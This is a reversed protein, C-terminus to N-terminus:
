QHNIKEILPLMIENMENMQKKGPVLVKAESLHHRQIHGMTTAKGEAIAQFDPLHHKIWFYYFWKPYTSSTVKFLHQNLVGKGGCWLVVELSGSWSFLVDGNDVIYESNLTTSAKDADATNETRLQAIKIVPLYTDGEPPYKQMALGNLFTAIEDIPKEEWGDRDPNDIFKHRFIAQALEELTQNMRRNLDIKDDLASLVDAIARQEPLPPLDLEFRSLSRANIGPQASGGISSEIFDKWSESQLIYGIFFPDAIQRNIKFRILYSAFVADKNEKILYTSGTTAGTRAVVIDGIDLKYKQLNEQSIKCFPVKEWDVGGVIDTIRLFRPGVPQNNASATYGYTVSSSIDGLKTKLWPYHSITTLDM